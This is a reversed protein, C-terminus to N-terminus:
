IGSKYIKRKRDSEKKDSDAGGTRSNPCNPEPPVFTPDFKKVVKVVKQCKKSLKKVIKQCSKSM